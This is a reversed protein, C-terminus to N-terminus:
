GFIKVFWSSLFLLEASGFLTLM